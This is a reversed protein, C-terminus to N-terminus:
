ATEGETTLAETSAADSSHIMQIMQDFVLDIAFLFLTSLLVFIATIISIRIAHNKTPWQVSRLETLAESFYKKPNMSYSFLSASSCKALLPSLLALVKRKVSNASFYITEIDM